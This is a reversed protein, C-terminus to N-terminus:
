PGQGTMFSCGLLAVSTINLCDFGGLSRMLELGNPNARKEADEFYDDEDSDAKRRPGYVKPGRKPEPWRAAPEVPRREAMLNETENVFSDPALGFIFIALAVPEKFRAAPQAM